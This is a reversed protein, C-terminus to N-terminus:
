NRWFHALIAIKQFFDQCLEPSGNSQLYRLRVDRNAPIRVSRSLLYSVRLCFGPHFSALAMPDRPRSTRAVTLEGGLDNRDLSMRRPILMGPHHLERNSRRFLRLPKPNSERFLRSRRNRGSNKMRLAHVSRVPTRPSVSGANESPSRAAFIPLTQPTTCARSVEVLGYPQPNSDRRRRLDNYSLPCLTPYRGPWPNGGCLTQATALFKAPAFRVLRRNAGPGSPSFVIFDSRLAISSGNASEM